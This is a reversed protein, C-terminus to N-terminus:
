LHETPNYYRDYDELQDECGEVMQIGSRLVASEEGYNGNVIVKYAVRLHAIGDHLRDIIDAMRPPPDSKPKRKDRTKKKRTAM